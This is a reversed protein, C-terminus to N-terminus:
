SIPCWKVDWRWADAVQTALDSRRPSWGLISRASHADGILLPPDGPRRAAITIPVSKLVTAEVCAVVEKVSYGRSNALNFARSRGGKVLYDLAALHADAIDSVHIYDRVCTGDLTDYDDGFIKVPIGTRAARIVLPILHTEPDHAEGIEAEPDAGAANFYRLAVWPLAIAQGLDALMREVFLKSAGYPNVPRQPASESIPTEDPVGYTACTSSFVIPIPRYSVVSRLLSLTGAVNNEYYLLPQEVSEGVYAFAAFHMLADPKYTHLLSELKKSDRVDGEELPGWKVSWRNGRCLNDYTIPIHGHAAIAKCAHSGIYGAGGTVLIKL